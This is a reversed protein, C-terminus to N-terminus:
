TGASVVRYWRASGSGEVILKRNGAVRGRFRQLAKGLATARSKDNPKDLAFPFAGLGECPALLDTATMREGLVPWWELLKSFDGIDNDAQEMFSRRNAMWAEDWGNVGMVGGVIQSWDEFSPLITTGLPCGEEAWREIWRAAGRLYADRNKLIEALLNPFRYKRPGSPPELRIPMTRRALEETMQINNATLFWVALNAAHLMRNSGLGRASYVEATIGSAFSGSDFRQPLNDLLVIPQGSLLISIIRKDREAEDHGIQMASARKGLMLGSVVTDVLMTKGSGPASAELLFAPVNGRIAPRMLMTVLAGVFGAIDSSSVFPFDAILDLPELIVDSSDAARYTSFTRQWPNYGYELQVGKRNFAPGHVVLQVEPVNAHGSAAARILRAHDESYPQLIREAQGDRTPKWIACRPGYTDFFVRDEALKDFPRFETRSRDSPSGTRSTHEEIVGLIGDRKYLLGHPEVYRLVHDAFTAGSQFHVTGSPDVHSGPVLTLGEVGALPPSLPESHTLPKRSKKAPKPEPEPKPRPGVPPAPRPTDDHPPCM